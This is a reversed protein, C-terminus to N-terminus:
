ADEEVEESVTTKPHMKAYLWSVFEGTIASRYRRRPKWFTWTRNTM